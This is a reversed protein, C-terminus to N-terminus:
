QVDYQKFIGLVKETEQEILTREGMSECITEILFKTSVFNRASMWKKYVAITSKDDELDYTDFSAFFSSKVEELDRMALIKNKELEWAEDLISKFLEAAFDLDADIGEELAGKGIVMNYFKEEGVKYIYFETLFGAYAALLSPNDNYNENILITRGRQIVISDTEINLLENNLLVNIRETVDRGNNAVKDISKMASMGNVSAAFVLLMLSQKYNIM